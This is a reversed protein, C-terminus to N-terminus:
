RRVAHTQLHARALACLSAPDVDPDLVRDRPIVLPVRLAYGGALTVTVDRADEVVEVEAGPLLQCAVEEVMLRFRDLGAYHHLVHLARARAEKVDRGRIPARLYQSARGGRRGEWIRVEYRGPPLPGEFVLM